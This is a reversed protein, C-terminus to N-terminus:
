TSDIELLHTLMGKDFERGILAQCLSHCKYIQPLAQLLNM